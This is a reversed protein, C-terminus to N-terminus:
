VLGLSALIRQSAQPLARQVLLEHLCVVPTTSFEALDRQLATLPTAPALPHTICVAVRRRGHSVALPLPVAGVDPDELLADLEAIAESGVQRRIDEALLVAARRVRAEPVTLDGGRRLYALLERGIHRNLKSHEFRNKFSRLCKYCSSGCSCNGLIVEATDLVRELVDGTQRAFGAGGNLSDYMFIEAVRGQQGAPSVAPRFEAQLEGVELELVRSSASTLAESLTRLSIETALVGPKLEVPDEVSLQLLLIDTIYDTGLCVERSVRGPCEPKRSDPFPKRHAGLL